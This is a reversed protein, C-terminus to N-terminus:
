LGRESQALEIAAERRSGGKAHIAPLPRRVGAHRRRAADRRDAISLDHIRRRDVPIAPRARRTVFRANLTKWRGIASTWDGSLEAMGSHANQADEGRKTDHTATATLGRPWRRARESMHAHFTALPMPEAAPNGGVENLALLLPFRYFATDELSKAMLPGTFQQLKAAFRRVRARSHPPRGPLLLDLTIADRLFDFIGADAAFWDARAKDIALEITRRDRANATRGRIYTRYVPFHLVFLTLAQRLSDESYDRTSYHGAAIRALLRTLVTFESVLLTELVRRKADILVPEFSPALNSVQRWIEKLETHGEPFLLVRSFHNLWEYGTTGDCVEFGQLSENEGLIKEILLLFPRPSGRQAERILRRLRQLYRSRIM